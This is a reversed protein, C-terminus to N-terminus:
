YNHLDECVSVVAAIFPYVQQPVVSNGLAKIRQKDEKDLKESFGDDVGRISPIVSWERDRDSFPLITRISSCGELRQTKDEREKSRENVQADSTIREGGNCRLSPSYTIQGRSKYSILFVRERQHLAGVDKAPLLYVRTEYGEGALDSVIGEIGGTLLGKVNEGIIFFPKTERAIRLTEGWLWRDDKDGKRKGAVSSPQCPPTVVLIDIGLYRTADFDYVDGYMTTEPFHQKLIDQCFPDIECMAVTQVGVSELVQEVGGIGSCISVATLGSM